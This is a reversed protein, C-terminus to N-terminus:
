ATKGDSQTLWETVDPGWFSERRVPRRLLDTAGRAANSNGVPAIALVHTAFNVHLTRRTPATTCPDAQCHTRRPRFCRSPEAFSSRAGPRRIWRNSRGPIAQSCTPWRLLRVNRCCGTRTSGQTPTV